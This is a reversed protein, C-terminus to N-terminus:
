SSWWRNRWPYTCERYRVMTHEHELILSRGYLKGFFSCGLHCEADRKWTFSYDAFNSKQTRGAAPRLRRKRRIALACHKM